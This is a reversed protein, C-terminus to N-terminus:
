QWGLGPGIPEGTARDWVVTSGRQNTIGVGDVPGGEALVTRAVDLAADAMVQADFEVLGPVPTDPLVERHVEHAITADDRVVAARVGSTGIDLVLVSMPAERGQQRSLLRPRRRRDRLQHGATSRVRHRAM